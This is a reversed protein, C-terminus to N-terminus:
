FELVVKVRARVDATASSAKIYGIGGAEQEIFSIVEADSGLKEPKKEANQFEREAFYTEVQTDTMKLVTAYFADREACAAKRTIPRISKNIDPWRSKLKRTFYLKAQGLTLAAIPNGKNVIVVYNGAAPPATFSSLLAAIAVLGLILIKKM